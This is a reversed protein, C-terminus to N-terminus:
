YDLDINEGEFVNNECYEIWVKENHAFRTISLGHLKGKEYTDEFTLNTGNGAWVGTKLGEADKQNTQKM